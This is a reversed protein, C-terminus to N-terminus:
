KKKQGESQWRFFDEMQVKMDKLREYAHLEEPKLQLKFFREKSDEPIDEHPTTYGDGNWKIENWEDALVGEIFELLASVDRYHLRIAGRPRTPQNPSNSMVLLGGM